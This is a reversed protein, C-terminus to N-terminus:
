GAKSTMPQVQHFHMRNKGQRKACYLAQDALKFVEDMNMADRPWMAGGISCSLRISEHGLQFPAEFTDIVHQAIGNVIGQVAGTPFPLLMLFEDGGLRVVLDTDRSCHQLRRAAEQLVLDGAAHGLRDNIPKFEDLDLCLVFLSGGQNHIRQEVKALYGELAARNALGTLTDCYAINKMAGLEHQQSSLSQVLQHIAQSLSQVESSGYLEPIAVKEGAAIRKAASAIRDLPQTILGALLWGLGAFFLSLVVGWHLIEEQMARVPAYAKDLPQRALVTWGLGQYNQHSSNGAVGILYERGDPWKQVSWSEHDTRQIELNLRHGLLESPGLQVTQDKGLILFEQGDLIGPTSELLSRRVWEAWARSLYCVLVGQLRDQDDRIPLGIEVLNNNMKTSSQMTEHSPGIFLAQRANLFVPLREISTGELQGNGSALVVGTADMLGLWAIDVFQEQFQKLLARANDIDDFSRVTELRKLLRLNQAREAMDRDLREIMLFASSALESGINERLRNFSAESILVGFVWSLSIILLAAILAFRTRLSTLISM